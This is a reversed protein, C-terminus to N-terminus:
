WPTRSPAPTLSAIKDFFEGLPVRHIMGMDSDVSEGFIEQLRPKFKSDAAFFEAYGDKVRGFFEPMSSLSMPTIADNLATTVAMDAVGQLTIALRNKEEWPGIVPFVHSILKPVEVSVDQPGGETHGWRESWREGTNLRRMVNKIVNQKPILGIGSEIEVVDFYPALYGLSEHAKALLTEDM